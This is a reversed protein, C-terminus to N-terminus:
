FGLRKLLCEYHFIHGCDVRISPANELGEIFCIRCYDTGKQGMLYHSEKEACEDNLCKLCEIEGQVGACPHGCALTKNCCMKKRKQCDDQKCISQFAKLEKVDINPIVTECFRCKTANMNKAWEECTFGLHYPVASCSRCQETKCNSNLCTYRNEVYNKLQNKNLKRGKDDKTNPDEKGPQFEYKEKCKVCTM